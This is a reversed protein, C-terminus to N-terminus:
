FDYGLEFVFKWSRDTTASLPKAFDFKINFFTFPIRVGTGVGLKLDEFQSGNWVRMGKRFVMGGDLFLVGRIGRIDVPLPFALKLRDIFPYRLELNFIAVGPGEQEFFEGWNYGRVNEGGVYYGSIAGLSVGSLLRSAFVFRRGLRQYNRFDGSIVEFQYTSLFSSVLELRARTGRVPGLYDPWFTNDFVLAGSGYILREGYRGKPYWGGEWLWCMADRYSGTLGAELRTFKDFPYSVVVQAGRDVSQVLVQEPVYYPIDFLQFVAFGYDVRYPLLWYWFVANSNLIDGYLDTYLGFRHNGMIDSFELYVTGSFGEAGTTYSAAGAVYDLALSFGVPKVKEFDLGSRQYSVTDKAVGTVGAAPPIKELPEFIISVDWGSNSFYAFVLKRDRADLSFSSVQGLFDTKQTVRQDKISYLCINESSSDAAVWLIYEGSGTWVPSGYYGRDPSLRYVDGKEDRIWVAYQGPIWDSGPEPRDSVFVISDGGPSYAPDRDEFIDYSLRTIKGSAIEIEYIDSFGNKLGVFVLRRGDPSFKPTYIGDLGPYLRKRVRGSPVEILAINDRGATRTVMAVMQEDPSWSVGPRILHMGEFGGSREGRVLRKLVAGDTASILYLDSYEARDSIMAIKTGSPSLAPAINYVSGDKMHDTLRQAINDFNVSKTIQPLYRIRLHQEWESSFKNISMGFVANFTADLNRKAKLTNMLEYVKERGYKEAVYKFFAEGERYALYGYNNNLEVLSLLRNNIVLDRMFIDSEVNVWGSQFEAFGEMIWLPVQFENIAGLLAALRSRYFMQFEFVHTLEHGLVHYFDRYSGNFPIVIRNKVLESFGGVGEEILDTIVNTESFHSPSLYIIVPVKNELEMNLSRSLELYFDEAAKAAFEALVEGGPYFLIKFHETEFSSFQYDRTQVKNKGFYDFQADAGSILFIAFLILFSVCMRFGSNGVALGSFM